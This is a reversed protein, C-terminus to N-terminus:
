VRAAGVPLRDGLAATRGHVLYAVGILLQILPMASMGWFWIEGVGRDPVHSLGLTLATVVALVILGWRAVGHIVGARFVVVSAVILAALELLPVAWTAVSVLALPNPSPNATGTYNEESLVPMPVFAIGSLVLGSVSFVILSLKGIISAGAIGSEKRIGVALITFAVVLVMASMLAPFPQWSDNLWSLDYPVPFTFVTRAVLPVVTALILASGGLTLTLRSSSRSSFGFRRALGGKTMASREAATPEQRGESEAQDLLAGLMAEENALRWQRPYWRMLRRYEASLPSEPAANKAPRASRASHAAEGDEPNM